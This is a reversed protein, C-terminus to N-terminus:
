SCRGRLGDVISVIREYRQALKAAAERVALRTRGSINITWADEPSSAPPADLTISTGYTSAIRFIQDGKAWFSRVFVADLPMTARFKRNRSHKHPRQVTSMVVSVKLNNVNM